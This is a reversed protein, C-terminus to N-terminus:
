KKVRTIGLFIIGVILMGISTYIQVKGYEQMFVEMLQVMIPAFTALFNESSVITSDLLTQVAIDNFFIMGYGFVSATILSAGIWQLRSHLNNNLKIQVFLLGFLLLILVPTVLKMVDYFKKLGAFYEGVPVTFDNQALTTLADVNSKTETTGASLELAAEGEIQNQQAEKRIQDFQTAFAPNTALMDTKIDIFSLIPSPGDKTIWIYGDDILKDTKTQVYTPTFRDYIQQSLFATQEDQKGEPKAKILFESITSYVNTQVLGTKLEQPTTGGYMLEAVFITFPSLLAFIFLVALKM